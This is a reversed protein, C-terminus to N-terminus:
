KGQVKEIAALRQLLPPHSYTILVTFPHPRLNSLSLVYLKKLGQAFANADAHV